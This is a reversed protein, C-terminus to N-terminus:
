GDMGGMGGMGDMWGMGDMGMGGMMGMGDMGMMGMADMGAMGGMGGTSSASPKPSQCWKTNCVQRSAFQWENCSPCQWGEFDGNGAPAVPAAFQPAFQPRAGGTGPKATACWKTNCVDKNM